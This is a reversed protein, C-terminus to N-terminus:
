PSAADSCANKEPEARDVRNVSLINNPHLHVANMVARSRADIRYPPPGFVVCNKAHKENIAEVLFCDGFITRVEYRHILDPRVLAGCGYACFPTPKHTVEARRGHLGLPCLLARAWRERIRYFGIRIYNLHRVVEKM